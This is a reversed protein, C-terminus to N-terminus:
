SGNVDSKITIGKPMVTVDQRGDWHQTTEAIIAGSKDRDVIKNSAGQSRNFNPASIIRQLEGNCVRSLEVGDVFQGHRVLPAEEMSQVFEFIENCEACKYDYIPM